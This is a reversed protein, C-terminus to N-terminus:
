SKLWGLIPCKPYTLRSNLRTKKRSLPNSKSLKYLEKIQVARPGNREILGPSLSLLLNGDGMEFDIVSAGATICDGWRHDQSQLHATLGAISLGIDQQSVVTPGVLVM